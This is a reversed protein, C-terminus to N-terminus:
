VEGWSRILEIVLKCAAIMESVAAWETRSHWNRGGTFINPTPIGLETLRSGDTGGRIPKLYSEIGLNSAAKQLIELVEPRADIKKKMNLYQLDTNMTISGGPFQAQVAPLFSELAAIRREIGSQEFDRINIKLSASEPNGTIEMPYYYGYYGDTAEPSESRPLMTAFSAAMLVANAMIGRAYGPHIAKGQFNVTTVYANFCELELEGWPGGDLTYCAASKIRELPFEPLGKGTEEDPTFIIEVPGHPIEPHSLLWELAGMIEAIGAKDDAGLLTSGDTHIIAKGKQAALSTDEKPDLVNTGTLQIKQGDYNKVLQPKVDKGSVDSATDLHALFGVTQRSERGPSPPLRAIVYCHDTLDVDTLGLGRLEEALAKALDWQGPTSPTEKVNPDSTTWYRVYKLFRPIVLESLRSDDIDSIKTAM